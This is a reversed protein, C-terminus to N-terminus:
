WSVAGVVNRLLIIVDAADVAGDPQPRGDVGLPAIDFRGMEADALQEEGLASKYAKLVDQILYSEAVFTAAVTHNDSLNRLAYDGGALLSLCDGGNDTLSLLRYGPKPAVTCTASGGAAVILPTCAIAGKDDTSAGSVSYTIAVFEVSVTCDSTIGATTYTSGNLTGGCGSVSAIRYGANPMITFTATEGYTLTQAAAPAVSGNGSTQSTVLHTDPAFTASVAHDATVGPFTHVFVAPDTVVSGQGDVSVATLHSGTGATATCTVDTNYSVPNSPTCGISGNGDAAATITYTLPTFSFDVACDDRVPATTYTAGTLTGGCGKVSAIGYGVDPTVTFAATEGYTVGQPTAPTITGNAASGPTVIHTDIEFKATYTGSATAGSVTLPNDTSTFGGDGRWDVFHYGTAPVATVPSTSGGFAIEQSTSGTLSGNEAATFTLTYVDAAFGARVAHDSKVGAFSYTFGTADTIKQEVGDVSFSVIHNGADPAATCSVATNYSVPGAPTCAVSGNGSVEVAFNFALPIFSFNVSCDSDASNITYTDDNFTGTPCTGTATQDPKYGADPVLTFSAASGAPIRLPNESGVSGNGGKIAATVTARKDRVLMVSRSGTSSTLQDPYVAGVSSVIWKYALSYYLCTDSTWYYGYKGNLFGQSALWAAGDSAEQNTIYYLEKRNPVRWEGPKSGDVLGCAGSGLVKAEDLAQQWGITGFCDADQLWVLGTLNDTLSGDKNDIFRPSPWDVGTRLEGDQGTGACDTVAGASDWCTTQGTKPLKIGEADAVIPMAVLLLFLSVAGAFM